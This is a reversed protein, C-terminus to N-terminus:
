LLIQESSQRRKNGACCIQSSMKYMRDAKQTVMGDCPVLKVIIYMSKLEMPQYISVFDYDISTQKLLLPYPKDVNACCQLLNPSYIMCLQSICKIMHHLYIIKHPSLPYKYLYM